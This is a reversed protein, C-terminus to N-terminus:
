STLDDPDEGYPILDESFGARTDLGHLAHLQQLDYALDLASEASLVLTLHSVNPSLRLAELLMDPLMVRTYLIDRVEKSEEMQDIEFYEELTDEFVDELDDKSDNESFDIPCPEGSSSAPAPM